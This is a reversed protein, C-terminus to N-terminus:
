QLLHGTKVYILAGDDKTYPTHQSLHPSRLWSGTPYVGHEDYFTGKLVLIEEGGWHRHPQFQTNPAWQVLAIHEEEFQHLPMVSLGDVLGPYWAQTKTNIAFQSHDQQHFQHLKVFITAGESGIVPQHKTGIPNRIYTGAPYAGHEDGFVGELVFIEEGGSHEHPSFQSNPDYRVLSTARAIEDGIRDLKMRDVGPMPSAEWQYDDPTIVVRQAFDANIEITTDITSM